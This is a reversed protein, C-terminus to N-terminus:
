KCFLGPIPMKVLFYLSFVLFAYKPWKSGKLSDFEDMYVGRLLKEIKKTFFKKSWKGLIKVYSTM